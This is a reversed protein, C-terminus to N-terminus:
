KSRTGSHGGMERPLNKSGVGDDVKKARALRNAAWQQLLLVLLLAMGIGKSFWFPAMLGIGSGFSLIRQFWGLHRFLYGELGIAILIMGMLGSIIARIIEVPSGILLLAPSYAFIFPVIYAAVGLRMAQWATQMPKSGAISAGTYAALCIPPTLFSLIAFYFVFMHAVIPIIGLEILAPAILIVVLIYAATVTMGMGLVIAGAAALLLLIFLNGGSMQILALSFAFGLGTISVVGLILGAAAAIVSIELLGEGTNELIALLKRLNIRSEKKLMAVVLVSVVSYLGAVDPDLFLIFLSYVLVVVPIFFIWGHLLVGKHSPLVERPLGKLNRKVAELDVQVFVGVYYLIAPVIAAVVVKAYPMGLFQAMLFAAAGMVPPMIQGGSSATAEVAGAYYSPYGSKKMLPITVVGTTAVNAVASGSMMGFSSSAIVSVKAPGGRFRGMLSMALNTLFQGGGTAFIAQGFLVFALVITGTVRMAISFLANEDVYLYTALRALPIGRGYLAGPFIDSFHAYLIFLTVIIVLPWGLLRRCSELVLVIALAGLIIRDLTLMGTTVAISPYLIVMYLGVMLGGLSLIADYWPLRDKPSGKAAPVLLPVLALVLGLLVALYQQIYVSIGFYLFVDLIGVVGALPICILSAKEISGLLGKHRRFRTKPSTEETM